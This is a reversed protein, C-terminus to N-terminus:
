TETTSMGTRTQSAPLGRLVVALRWNREARPAKDNEAQTACGRFSEATASLSKTVWQRRVALPRMDLGAPRGPCQTGRAAEDNEPCFFAWGLGNLAALSPRNGTFTPGHRPGTRMMAGLM